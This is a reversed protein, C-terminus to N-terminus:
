SRVGHGTGPAIGVLRGASLLRMRHGPLWTAECCSCYGTERDQGGIMTIGPELTSAPCTPCRRGSLFRTLSSVIRAATSTGSDDASDHAEPCYLEMVIKM